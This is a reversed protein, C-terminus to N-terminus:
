GVCSQKFAEIGGSFHRRIGDIVQKDDLADVDSDGQIDLFIGACDKIWERAQKLENNNLVNM